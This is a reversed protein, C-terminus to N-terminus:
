KYAKLDTILTKSIGTIAIRANPSVKITQVGLISLYLRQLPTQMNGNYEEGNGGVHTRWPPIGVIASVAKLHPYHRHATQWVHAGHSTAKM